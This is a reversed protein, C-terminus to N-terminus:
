HGPRPFGVPRAKTSPAGEHISEERGPRMKRGAEVLEEGVRAHETVPVRELVVPRVDPKALAKEAEGLPNGLVVQGRHEPAGALEAGRDGTGTVALVVNEPKAPPCDLEVKDLESPKEGNGATPKRADRILKERELPVAARAKGCPFSAPMGDDRELGRGPPELLVLCLSRQSRSAHCLGPPPSPWRGYIVM